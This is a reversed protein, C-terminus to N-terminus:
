RLALKFDCGTKARVTEVTVGPHLERLVLGGGEAVDFVCLDTILMSVVGKGTIASVPAVRIGRREYWAKWLGTVAPDALDAKNFVVFRTKREFLHDFAPNRSSGPIRADCVEVVLDIVKLVENIKRTAKNMHGPFWRTLPLSNFDIKPIQM